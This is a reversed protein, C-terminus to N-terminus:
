PKPVFAIKQGGIAAEFMAGGTPMVFIATGNKFSASKAGGKKLAIASADAAFSYEGTKFQAMTLENEFVVLEAFEQGGAQAGINIKKLDAYGVFEGGEYVTGRGYSGGVILGGKGVSPFIAYGRATKMFDNLTPDEIYFKKLTADADIELSQKAAETKPATECGLGLVLAALTVISSSLVRM